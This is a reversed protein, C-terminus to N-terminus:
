KAFPGKFLWAGVDEIMEATRAKNMAVAEARPNDKLDHTFGHRVDRVLKWKYSGKEFGYVGDGREVKDLAALDFMMERGENALMDYEAGVIYVWEPLKERGAFRVSLLPDRLDQGLKVYAWEWIPGWDKLDDTDREHRYPRSSQKEKPSLTFDLVPYWSVIGRVKGKLEPMQAASINLNGGASFGGLVVRSKDVPLADDELIAQTIAVVDNTPGPFKSRPAKSYEISVVLIGLKDAFTSCFEDDFQADLLAHGGAHLDIYLPLLEGPNHSKPIFIRNRLRRRCPYSKITSPRISKPPPTFFRIIAFGLSSLLKLGWLKLFYTLRTTLPPKVALLPSSNPEQSAM